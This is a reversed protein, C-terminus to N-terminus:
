IAIQLEYQYNEIIIDTGWKKFYGEGIVQFGLKKMVANSARNEKAVDVTIKKAGHQRAYSLMAQIMETAYGNKWYKKHVCYAIDYVLGDESQIMSCTGIRVGAEKLEAIMYCSGEAEGLTDLAKRYKEDIQELIPDSLYKGMEADNWISMVFEVDEREYGRLYLRQTEIKRIKM